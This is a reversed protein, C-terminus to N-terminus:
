FAYSAALRGLVRPSGESLGLAPGAVLHVRRDALALALNPGVFHRIGGDAEEPDWAGELDQVVYEAGVRLPGLAAYSAGSTLLVDVGDRGEAFVHEGLASATLRLAGVDIAGAVRGWAGDDGGLERLYGAALTVDVRSRAPLLAVVAGAMAGARMPEGAGEGALLGAAVVGVHPLLGVEAGAEFVAGAHAVDAAFPRAAGRNTQAYGVGLSAMVRGPPPQTPDTSYLWPRVVGEWAADHARPRPADVPPALEGGIVSEDARAPMAVLLACACAGSRLNWKVVRSRVM